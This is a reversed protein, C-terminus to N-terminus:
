EYNGGKTKSVTLLSKKKQPSLKRKETELVNELMDFRKNWMKTLERMWHEMEDIKEANISYLRQQANKQVTVLHTDRLIKLHQSEGAPTSSFHNYFESAPIRGKSALLEVIQRRTPEAVANFIDM